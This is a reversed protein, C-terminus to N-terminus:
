RCPPRRVAPMACVPLRRSVASWRWATTWPRSCSACSGVAEPEHVTLALLDLRGMMGALINNFEHAVGAAVRGLAGLREAARARSEMLNRETIDRFAVVQGTIRGGTVIVASTYAIPFMTGDKRTYVDDDVKIRPLASSVGHLSCESAPLPTGNARQFHILEHMPRGLLEAETWGLM